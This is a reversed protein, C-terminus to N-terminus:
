LGVYLQIWGDEDEVLKQNFGKGRPKSSIGRRNLTLGELGQGQKTCLRM